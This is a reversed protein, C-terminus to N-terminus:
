LKLVDKPNILIWGNLVNEMAQLMVEVFKRISNMANLEPEVNFRVRLPSRNLMSVDSVGAM